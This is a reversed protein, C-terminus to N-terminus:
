IIIKQNTLISERLYPNLGNFSVLDVKKDLIQELERKLHVVSLGMEKPPEFLIDIDSKEDNEKRVYSGFLSARKVNYKNLVPIIFNSIDKM